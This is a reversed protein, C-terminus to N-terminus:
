IRDPAPHRGAAGDLASRFTNPLLVALDFRERRLRRLAGITRQERDPSRHNFLIWDDFWATGELTPAVHPKIVATLTAGPFGRRLARFTPTAMVADGIWNPCFIAIKM